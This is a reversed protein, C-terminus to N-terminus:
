RISFCYKEALFQLWHIHDAGLEIDFDNTDERVVLPGTSQLISEFESMNIQQKDADLSPRM